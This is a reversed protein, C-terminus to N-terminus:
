EMQDHEEAIEIAKLRLDENYKADTTWQLVRQLFELNNSSVM